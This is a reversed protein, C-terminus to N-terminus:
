RTFFWGRFHAIQSPITPAALPPLADTAREKAAGFRHLEPHANSSCDACITHLLAILLMLVAIVGVLVCFVELFPLGAQLMSDASVPESVFWNM